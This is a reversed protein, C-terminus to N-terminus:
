KKSAKLVGDIVAKTLREKIWNKSREFAPFLFPRAAMKSTGFELLKGYSVGVTVTGELSGQGLAGKDVSGRISNVLLGTDSAPAEGPGSARHTVTRRKYVRGTKQGSTISRKAEGEVQKMSAYMGKALENAIQQRVQETANHIRDLGQIEITIDM